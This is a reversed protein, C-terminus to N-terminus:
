KIVITKIVQQEVPVDDANLVSNHETATTAIADLYESGAKVTGFAAYQGDLSHASQHMIFFQSSASDMSAMTRAMSIVGREHPILNFYGNEIFEGTINQAEKQTYSTDFGGGQIMFGNIVRHFILGDYFGSSALSVFNNVTIPAVEPYLELEIVGGNELQIEANIKQATGDVLKAYVDYKKDFAQEYVGFKSALDSPINPSHEYNVTVTRTADDWGVEAGFMESIARLPVMTFDNMIVPPADLVTHGKLAMSTTAFMHDRGIWTFYLYEGDTLTIGQTDGDWAVSCGLAETVARLPVLTRENVIVAPTETQLTEGNVVIQIDDARVAAASSLVLSAAVASAIIGRLKKM